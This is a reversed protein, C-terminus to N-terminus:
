AMIEPLPGPWPLEAVDFAVKAVVKKAELAQKKVTFTSTWAVVAADHATQQASSANDPQKPKAARHASLDDWATKYVGYATGAGDAQKAVQTAAFSPDVAQRVADKVLTSIEGKKEKAVAQMWQAFQNPKTTEVLTIRLNLPMVRSAAAPGQVPAPRRPVALWPLKQGKRFLDNLEGKEVLNFVHEVFVARTGLGETGPALLEIKIAFDREKEKQFFSKTPRLFEHREWQCVTFRFASADPSVEVQLVAKISCQAASVDDHFVLCGKDVAIVGDGRYFGELPITAELTVAEAQMRAATADILSEAAKAALSVAFDVAFLTAAAGLATVDEIAPREKGPDPFVVNKTLDHTGVLERYVFEAHLISDSSM